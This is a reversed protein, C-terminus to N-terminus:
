LLEALDRAGSEEIQERSIVETAVPAEGLPRETRSGTVVVADVSQVDEGAGTDAPPSAPPTAAPPPSTATAPAATAPAAPAQAGASSAVFFLGGAALGLGRRRLSRSDLLEARLYRPMAASGTARRSGVPRCRTSCACCRM